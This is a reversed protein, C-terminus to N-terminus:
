EVVAKRNNMENLVVSFLCDFGGTYMENLALMARELRVSFLCDFGVQENRGTGCLSSMVSLLFSVFSYYYVSWGQM